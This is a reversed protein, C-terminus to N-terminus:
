RGVGQRVSWVAAAVAEEPTLTGGQAGLATSQRFAWYDDDPLPLFPVHHWWRRRRLKFGARVLPVAAAPHRLVYAGLGHVRRKRIVDAFAM